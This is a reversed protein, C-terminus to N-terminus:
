RKTEKDNTDDAYLLTPFELQLGALSEDLLHGATAAILNLLRARREKIIRKERAGITEYTQGDRSLFGWSVGHPVRPKPGAIFLTLCGRPDLLTVRHFTKDRLFNIRGPGIRRKVIRPTSGRGAMDSRLAASRWDDGQLRPWVGVLREEEYGGWLVLSFSWSWPHCHLERDADSRYFWHAFVGPLRARRRWWDQDPSLYVRLLYELLGADDWVTFSPRPIRLVLRLPWPKADGARDEHDTM